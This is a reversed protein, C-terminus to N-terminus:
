RKRKFRQKAAHKFSKWPGRKAKDRESIAAHLEEQLRQSKKALHVLWEASLDHLNDATEPLNSDSMSDQPQSQRRWNESLGEPLFEREIECCAESFRDLVVSSMPFPRDVGSSNPRAGMLMARTKNSRRWSAMDENPLPLFQNCRRLIEIHDLSLATNLQNPTEYDSGDISLLDCFDVCIDGGILKGRHYERVVINESGFVQAWRRLRHIPNFYENQSNVNEWNLKERNAVKVSTSHASKALSVPDRIYCVIQVERGAAEIAKKFREIEQTSHVRSSLHECSVVVTQKVSQLYSVFDSLITKGEIQKHDAIFERLKNQDM